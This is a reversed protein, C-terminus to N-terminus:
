EGGQQNEWKIANRHQEYKLRLLYIKRDNAFFLNLTGAVQTATSLHIFGDKEDLASVPLRDPLPNPPAASEPVIKYVYTPTTMSATPPLLCDLSQHYFEVAIQDSLGIQHGSLTSERTM